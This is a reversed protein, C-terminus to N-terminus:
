DKAAASAIVFRRVQRVWRGRRKDGPVVLRYPGEAADLSRGDRRDALLFMADTNSPDLESLSFVVRYDDAAEVVVYLLLRAGRLDGGLKIGVSELVDAVAPGEYRHETGDRDKVALQKRPLKAFEDAGLSHAKGDEDVVSLSIVPKDAARLRVAGASVACAIISAAALAYARCPPHFFAM